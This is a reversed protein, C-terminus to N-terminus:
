AQLALLADIGYLKALQLLKASPQTVSLTAGAQIAARNIDLLLALASSDFQSLSTADIQWNSASAQGLWNGTAVQHHTLLTPLALAPTAM